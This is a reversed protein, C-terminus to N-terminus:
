RQDQRTDADDETETAEPQDEEKLHEYRASADKANQRFIVFFSRGLRIAGYFILFAGFLTKYEKPVFRSTEGSDSTLFWIGIFLFFGGLILGSYLLYKRTNRM